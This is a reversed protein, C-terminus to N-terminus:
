ECRERVYSWVAPSPCAKCKDDNFWPRSDPCPACNQYKDSWPRDRPCPICQRSYSDWLPHSPYQACSSACREYELDYEENEGCKARLFDRACRDTCYDCMKLGFKKQIHEICEKVTSVDQLCYNDDLLETSPSPPSPPLPPLSKNQRSEVKKSQSGGM